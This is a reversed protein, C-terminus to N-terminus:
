CALFRFGSPVVFMGQVSLHRGDSRACDLSFSGSSPGPPTPPGEPSPDLNPPPIQFSATGTGIACSTGDTDVFNGSVGREDFVVGICGPTATGQVVGNQACSYLEVHDLVPGGCGYTVEVFAGNTEGWTTTSPYAFSRGHGSAEDIVSMILTGAPGSTPTIQVTAEGFTYTGIYPSGATGGGAGGTGTTGAGGGPGGMGGTLAGGCGVALLCVGLSWARAM